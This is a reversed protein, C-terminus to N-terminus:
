VCLANGRLESILGTVRAGHVFRVHPLRGVHRRLVYEFTARRGWLHLLNADGPAPEIGEYENPPLVEAVTSLELGADLLERLLQPHHDRITTQLRALLIHAHRFQPVGPRAWADFADEPVIEPPAEDREVIVVEFESAKLSLATALGGIGAGIIVLRQTGM